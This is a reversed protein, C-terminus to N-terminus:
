VSLIHEISENTQAKKAEAKRGWFLAVRSPEYFEGGFLILFWNLKQINIKSFM